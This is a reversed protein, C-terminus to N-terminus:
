EDQIAWMGNSLFRHYGYDSNITTFTDHFTLFGLGREKYFAYPTYKIIGAGPLTHFRRLVLREDSIDDISYNVYTTDLMPIEFDSSDGESWCEINTRLLVRARDCRRARQTAAIFTNGNNDTTFMLNLGFSPRVGTWETTCFTMFAGHTCSSMYVLGATNLNKTSDSEPNSVNSFDQVSGDPRYMFCDTPYAYPSSESHPALGLYMMKQGHLGYFTFAGPNQSSQEIRSLFPAVHTDMKTAIASITPYTCHGDDVASDRTDFKELTIAM